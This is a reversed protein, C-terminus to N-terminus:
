NTQMTSEGHLNDARICQLLHSAHRQLTSLVESQVDDMTNPAETKSRIKDMM